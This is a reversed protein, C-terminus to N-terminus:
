SLCSVDEIPEELGSYNRFWRTRNRHPAEEDRLLEVFSVIPEETDVVIGSFDQAVRLRICDEDSGEITEVQEIYGTADARRYRDLDNALAETWGDALSQGYVDNYISFAAHVIDEPVLPPLEDDSSKLLRLVPPNYIAMHADLIAQAEETTVEGDQTVNALDSPDNTPTSTPTPTATATPTPTPTATPTPTGTAPVTPPEDCTVTICTSSASPSPTPEANDTCGALALCAVIGVVGQMHPQKM